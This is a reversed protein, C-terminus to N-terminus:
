SIPPAVQWVRLDPSNTVPVPRLWAPARGGELDAMFGKPSAALYLQIEPLRRCYAVYTAGSARVIAEADRASGTFSRIVERMADNNRHYGGAIVSHQTYMLMSPGVDIPAFLTAAPRAAIQSLGAESLCEKGDFAPQLMTREADDLEIRAMASGAPIPSPLAIALVTLPVRAAAFRLNALRRLLVTLLAASGITAYLHAVGQGRYVLVSLLFAGGFMVAFTTWRRAAEPTEASRWGIWAGIMGVLSPWLSGVALYSPQDWLPLGERVNQYWFRHVLPDLAEFPGGLCAPGSLALAAAGVAGAVGLLALRQVAGEMAPLRSGAAVTAAAIALPLLYPASMSDCRVAGWAAPLKTAAFFAISAAAAAILYAVLRAGERRDLLYRLALLAGILALYPLGEISIHTWFAAAIGAVIGSRRPDDDLLALLALGAMAIQWSHHDIRLPAFQALLYPSTAVLLAALIGGEPGLLRRGARAVFNMALLLIGLPVAILAAIEAQAGGLLPRLLLIVGAIPMDVFRSWHMDGGHPPYLRHQSVDFWGQGALWDRVQVLRMHDDPDIMSVTLISQWRGAILIVAVVAWALLILRGYPWGAIGRAPQPAPAPTM